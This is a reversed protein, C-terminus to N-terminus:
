TKSTPEPKTFSQQILMMNFENIFLKAINLSHVDADRNNAFKLQDFTLQDYEYICGLTLHLSADQESTMHFALYEGEAIRQCYAVALCHNFDSSEHIIRELSHMEEFRWDGYYMFKEPSRRQWETNKVKLRLKKLTSSHQLQQHWRIAKNFLGSWTVSKSIDRKLQFYDILYDAVYSDFVSIRRSHSLAPHHFRHRFDVASLRHRQLAMIFDRNEHTAPDVFAILDPELGEIIKQMFLMYAQMVRSQKKFVQKAIRMDGEAIMDLLDLWEELYMVSNSIMKKHSPADEDLSLTKNKHHNFWFHQKAYASCEEIFLRASIDKFYQLTMLIAQPHVQSTDVLSLASIAIGVSPKALHHAIWDVVIQDQKYLWNVTRAFRFVPLHHVQSEDWYPCKKDLFNVKSFLDRYQLNGRNFLHALGILHPLEHAHPLLMAIDYQQEILDALKFYDYFRTEILRYLVHPLLRPAAFCLEDYIPVIRHIPLFDEGLVSNIMCLHKINLEIELPIEIGRTAFDTLHPQDYYKNKILLQDIEQAKQVSITYLYQEILNEADIWEFVQEILSQRLLQAKTKLFLPHQSKRDGTLFQIDNLLFQNLRQFSLQAQPSEFRIISESQDSFYLNLLGNIFQISHREENIVILNEPTIEKFFEIQARYIKEFPLVLALLAKATQQHLLVDDSSSQVSTQM